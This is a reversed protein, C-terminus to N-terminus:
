IRLEFAIQMLTPVNVSLVGKLHPIDLHEVVGPSQKYITLLLTGAVQSIEERNM